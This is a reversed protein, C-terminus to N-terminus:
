WGVESEEDLAASILDNFHEIEDDTLVGHDKLMAILEGLMITLLMVDSM